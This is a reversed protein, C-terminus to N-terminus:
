KDTDGIAEEETGRYTNIDIDDGTELDSTQDQLLRFAASVGLTSCEAPSLTQLSFQQEETSRLSGVCYSPLTHLSVVEAAVDVTLLRM